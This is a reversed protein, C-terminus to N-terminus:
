RGHANALAQSVRERLDALAPTDVLSQAGELVARAEPWRGKMQLGAAQELM